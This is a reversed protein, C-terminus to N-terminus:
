NKPGCGLKTGSPISDINSNEVGGMGRTGTTYQLSILKVEEKYQTLVTGKKTIQYTTVTTEGYELGPIFKLVKVTYPGSKFEKPQEAKHLEENNYVTVKEGKTVTTSNYGLKIDTGVSVVPPICAYSNVMFGLALVAIFKKM